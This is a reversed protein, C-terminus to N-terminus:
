QEACTVIMRAKPQMSILNRAIQMLDDFIM